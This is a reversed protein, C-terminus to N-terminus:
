QIEIGSEQACVLYPYERFNHMMLLFWRGLCFVLWGALSWTNTSLTCIFDSWYIVKWLPKIVGCSSRMIPWYRCNWDKALFCVGNYLTPWWIILSHKNMTLTVKVLITLQIFVNRHYLFSMSHCNWAITHTKTNLPNIINGNQCTKISYM